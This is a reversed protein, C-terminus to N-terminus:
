AMARHAKRFENHHDRGDHRQVRQRHVHHQRREGVDTRGKFDGVGVMRLQHQRGKQEAEADALEHHARQRVAEAATRDQEAAHDDVRERAQKRDARRRELGQQERPRQLPQAGRRCAHDGGRDDAIAIGSPPHRAHHRKGHHHENGHGHNRRREPLRHQQQRLPPADKDHQHEIAHDRQDPARQAHRFRQGDFNRL